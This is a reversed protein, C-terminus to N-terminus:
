RSQREDTSGSARVSALHRKVAAAEGSTPIELQAEANAAPLPNGKEDVATVDAMRQTLGIIRLRPEWATEVNVILM